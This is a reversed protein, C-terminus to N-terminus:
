VIRPEIELEVRYRQRIDDRIREALALLEVGSAGGYNVLVLAQANHVGVAGDRYGKWGAQDILWGAALKYGQADPYAVLDQFEQKLELYHTRDVVPNKFFSGANALLLPDPLKKQRVAVVTDFLQQASPPESPLAQLLGGYHLVPTFQLPLVFSVALIVYREGGNQKFLSDRYGFCCAANSLVAVQDQQRDWVTVSEIFQKVEVGYAGINQIPAAGVTGPILALNELGHWGQQLCYEVFGHWPEGAEVTVRVQNADLQQPQIGRSNIRICLGDFDQKLILNSGGGLLLLPQNDSVPQRLLQLLQERSDVEVFHRATAPLSLTNFATLDVASSLTPNAM